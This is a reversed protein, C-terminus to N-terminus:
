EPARHRGGGSPESSGTGGQGSPLPSREAAQGAPQEGASDENIWGPPDAAVETRLGSLWHELEDSPEETGAAESSFEAAPDELATM